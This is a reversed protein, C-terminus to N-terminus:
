VPFRYVTQLPEGPTHVHLALGPHATTDVLRGDPSAPEFPLPVSSRIGPAVLLPIGAFSSAIANHVHGALLATVPKDRLVAEFSERGRLMWQDMVPHHLDFPPHHFAVFLPGDVPERLVGDLWSLSDDSLLGYNEEPVSTDVLVFRVGAVDQVQHVPHGEGPSDIYSALGARLPASVDHNGPLVVVPVDLKLEAALEAYESEVGHDALDGTVLVVDVPTRFTGLYSTIRRLRSRAEESGDLHPDSLHAIVIM